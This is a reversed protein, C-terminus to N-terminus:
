LISCTETEYKKKKLKITTTNADFNYANIRM